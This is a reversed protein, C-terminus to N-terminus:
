YDLPGKEVIFIKKHLQFTGYVNKMSGSIGIFFRKYSHNSFIGCPERYVILISAAFMFMELLLPDGTTRNTYLTVGEHKYIYRLKHAIWDILRGRRFGRQLTWYSRRPKHLSSEQMNRLRAAWPSNNRWVCSWHTHTHLAWIPWHTRELHHIHSHQNAQPTFM